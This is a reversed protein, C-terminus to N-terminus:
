IHQKKHDVYWGCKQNIRLATLHSATSELPKRRTDSRKAQCEYLVSQVHCRYMMCHDRPRTKGAPCHIKQVPVDLGITVMQHADLRIM